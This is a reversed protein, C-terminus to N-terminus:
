LVTMRRSGPLRARVARLEPSGLVVLVVLYVAVGVAGAAALRVAADLGQNAGVSTGVLWMVEGALVVAVLMRWVSALIARAPFTRVKTALVHLVWLASVLYAVAFAVGLGLVGFRDVLLVALVINLVNEVVNVVFPTRTDHHAYFARLVFLYVSFGTLGLALGGIARATADADGADFAGYQTLLGVIPRRLVFLGMAAPLTLFTILRIGLSARDVFAARDKRAVARAMEPGFTTAISMALLGHPLVFFTYGLIYAAADGSGPRALNRIVLVSVQNAIVYGLTWGSLVLLRRVAPHRLALRPRYRLGSGRVAPVLVLGMLAIGITTGLALTWLLRSNTVADDLGWSGDTPDALSVFSVIIALNPLIPVWAAAFFRRRTHLVATCLATLGYFFIQLVFVRTLTSGVSRLAGVDVGAAPDLTYLRFILPAGLVALLTLAGLAILVATIVVNAAEEDRQEHFTTFLPILAASLAGGIVLEYVINPLENAILYTDALADRGIVVAFVAVRALGTIRSLATGVAVM